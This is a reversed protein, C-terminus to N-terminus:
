IKKSYSNESEQLKQCEQQTKSLEEKMEAHSRKRLCTADSTEGQTEKLKRALDVREQDVWYLKM